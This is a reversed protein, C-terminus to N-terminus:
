RTFLLDGIILHTLKTKLFVDYADSIRNILPKGKINFSTNMVIPYGTKKEIEELLNYIWKNQNPTVTQLRATGDLHEVSAFKGSVRNSFKLAFSMYPSQIKEDFFFEQKDYPVIPALPRFWEREKIEFNVIDKKEIKNPYCIISRNGLARPGFESNGRMVGVIADQDVLLDAIDSMTYKRGSLLIEPRDNEYPLGMYTLNHKEKPPFCAWISGASIGCDSPASPVHVPIGFHKRIKTNMIVNLACGGVLIIGDTDPMVEKELEAIVVNEIAVQMTAALNRATDNDLEMGIELDIGIANSLSYFAQISSQFHRFYEELPKIWQEIVTGLASYGMLKGSLALVGGIPQPIHHTLEPMLTALARYSSGLNMQVRSALNLKDNLVNYINFIGDNGGGDFSLIIPNIFDADYFGLAAHAYHHDCKVWQKATIIERLITLESPIVWNTIAYDFEHINTISQAKAVAECWQKRFEDKDSSSRFYRIQFLRELELILVIRGNVSISLNADHRTHISIITAM